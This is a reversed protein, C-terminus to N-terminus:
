LHGQTSATPQSRGTDTGGRKTLFIKRSIVQLQSLCLVGSLLAVFYRLGFRSVGRSSDSAVDWEDGDTGAGGDSQLSPAKLARSVRKLCELVTTVSPRCQPQAVWCRNLMRWLDGKFQTREPGNPRKPREGEIVKQIIVAYHFPAFPVQGSLVEYIVMGFAYCDSQKTPRAGKLGSKDPYFLEPSM